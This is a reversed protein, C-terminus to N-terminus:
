GAREMLLICWLMSFPADVGERDVTARGWGHWRFYLSRYGFGQDRARAGASKLDAQIRTQQQLEGVRREFSISSVIKVRSM